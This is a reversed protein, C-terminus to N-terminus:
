KQLKRIFKNELISLLEIFRDKSDNLYDIEDMVYILNPIHRRKNKLDFNENISLEEYFLFELYASETHNITSNIMTLFYVEHWWDRHLHDRLRGLLRSNNEVANVRGVYAPIVGNANLYGILIYFGSLSLHKHKQLDAGLRSKPIKYIINESNASSLSILGDPKNDLFSLKFNKPM